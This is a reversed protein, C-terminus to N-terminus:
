SPRWVRVTVSPPASPPAGGVPGRSVEVEVEMGQTRAERIAAHLADVASAVSEKTRRDADLVDRATLEAIQRLVSESPTQKAYVYASRGAASPVPFRYLVRDPHERMLDTVKAGEPTAMDLMFDPPPGKRSPLPEPGADTLRWLSHREGGVYAELTRRIAGPLPDGDLWQRVTREDRVLADRAFAHVSLGSRAIATRLLEADTV